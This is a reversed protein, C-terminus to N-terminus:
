VYKVILSIAVVAHTSKAHSLSTIQAKESKERGQGLKPWNSAPLLACVWPAQDWAFATYSPHHFGHRCGETIASAQLWCSCNRGADLGLM